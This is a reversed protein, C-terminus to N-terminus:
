PSEKETTKRRATQTNVFYGPRASVILKEHGPASVVKFRLKRFGKEGPKIEQEIGVLYQSHLDHQFEAIANALEKIDEVYFVRGGSEEAIKNLLLEAKARPSKRILGGAEDLHKVIGVVFVQVDNERLLKILQDTGYYSSRDEGDTFLVVARRRESAGGQKQEATHQIALYVADIVASQGGRIYLAELAKTLKTKDPTFDQLKEIKASDVFTEVFTEDDAQNGNVLTKAAEVVAPLLAKFSGSTDVVLAYNVPRLDKSFSVIAPAQRDEELQIEEQRVDDVSHQKKDTVIMTLKVLQKPLQAPSPQADQAHIISLQLLLFVFAILRRLLRCCLAQPSAFRFGLVVGVLSEFGTSRAVATENCLPNVANLRM